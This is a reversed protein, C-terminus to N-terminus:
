GARALRLRGVIREAGDVRVYPMTVTGSGRSWASLLSLLGRLLDDRRGDFEDVDGPEHAARAAALAQAVLKEGVDALHVRDHLDHATKSSASM